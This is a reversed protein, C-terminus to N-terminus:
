AASGGSEVAPAIRVALPQSTDLHVDRQPFPMAIGAAGLRKEIAFRLDSDIRRSDNALEGWYVLVMLLASDGFDEFYVEPPPKKLVQGHDEACGTIIEAAERVPSGYAIGIRIERRRRTDSYTWNVVQNELFSSNPVVAEVGDFGRVTSSRLNVEAVVGTVGDVEIIDGVRVQREMLVIL